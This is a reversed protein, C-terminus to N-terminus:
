LTAGIAPDEIMKIAENRPNPQGRLEGRRADKIFKTCLHRLSIEGRGISM